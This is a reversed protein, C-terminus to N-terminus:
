RATSDLLARFAAMDLEALAAHEIAEHEYEVADHLWRVDKGALYRSRAAIFRAGWTYATEIQIDRLSKTGLELDAAQVKDHIDM